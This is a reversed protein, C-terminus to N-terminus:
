SGAPLLQCDHSIWGALGIWSDFYFEPQFSHIYPCNLVWGAINAYSGSKFKVILMNILLKPQVQCLEDEAQESHKLVIKLTPFIHLDVSHKRSGNKM